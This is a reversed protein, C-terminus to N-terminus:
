VTLFETSKISIHWTETAACALYRINYSVEFALDNICLLTYLHSHLSYHTSEKVTKRVLMQEFLELVYEDSHDNMMGSQASIEYSAASSHRHGPPPGPKEKEKKRM